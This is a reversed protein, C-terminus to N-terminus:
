ILDEIDVGLARAIDALVKTSGRRRGSELQAVYARRVGAAQALQDQTMRRYERWVRMPHEGALLADAVVIPVTEQDRQAKARDYARAADADEAQELLDQWVEYRVVVYAPKGEHELILPKDTM